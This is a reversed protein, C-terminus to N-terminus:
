SSSILFHDAERPAPERSALEGDPRPGATREPAGVPQPPRTFTAIRDVRPGFVGASGGNAGGIAESGMPRLPLFRSIGASVSALRGIGHTSLKVARSRSARRPGTSRRWYCRGSRLACPRSARVRRCANVATASSHSGDGLHVSVCPLRPACVALAPEIKTPGYRPSDGPRAAGFRPTRCGPCPVV